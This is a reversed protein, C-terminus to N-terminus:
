ILGLHNAIVAAGVNKDKGEWMIDFGFSAAYSISASIAGRSSLTVILWRAGGLL